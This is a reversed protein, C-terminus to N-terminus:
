FTRYYGNYILLLSMPFRAFRIRSVQIETKLNVFIFM